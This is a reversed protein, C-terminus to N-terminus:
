KKVSFIKKKKKSFKKRSIEKMEVKLNKKNRVKKM